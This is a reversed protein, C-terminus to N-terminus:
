DEGKAVEEEHVGHEFAFHPKLSLTVSLGFSESSVAADFRERFTAHSLGRIARETVSGQMLARKAFLVAIM